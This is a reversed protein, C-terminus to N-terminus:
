LNIYSRKLNNIGLPYATQLLNQWTIEKMRRTTPSHVGEQNILEIGMISFHQFTHSPLNFHLGVPTDKRNRINSLHDNIRDALQRGTEGVYQLKCKTCTIVYILNCTKCNINGIVTFHKKNSSSIFTKGTTIFNCAKCRTNVCRNCGTHPVVSHHNGSSSTVHDLKSHVLKRRLNHGTCYATILRYDDFMNNNNIIAKWQSALQVGVENYAIVIPLPKPNTNQSPNPNTVKPNPNTVKQKGDYNNWIDTKMKRMMRKSYNRLALSRFLINCTNCYDAYSTSIRKFRLVQSKLVGRAVHRPHFSSKELLQHTDTSKFYVKTHLVDVDNEQHKYVTTDLFDVSVDSCCLTITIGDILTNLFREYEKLQERSGTFVLFIDDLYRYFLLPKIYFGTIAKDDFEEMYIDALGPAYTKGMATGCTQLYYQGNFEFDNNNLTLELLRLLHADPRNPEPHKRLAERTTDIIRNLKMNTYLSSVDGTVLLANKPIRQYRIKSVFDYTDKIYSRHRISIPRIFSDIYQSIRYSESSCDSVIPRGEPMRDPQPWKERPKHIKPLLYFIRARDTSQARLFLLQKRSIIKMSEMEELIDNIRAVNDPYIPKDLKRYYNTNNLQRDAEKLYADKDLIVTASGKDAPKIVISQNKQLCLLASREDKTLNNVQQNRLMLRGNIVKHKKLLAETANLIDQVTNLTSQSVKHDPPTWTSRHTFTKKSYDFSDDTEDQFYDKLKINRILRNQFSYIDNIPLSNYTPIFTLGKNLLSLQHTSLQLSSLNLTFSQVQNTNNGAGNNNNNSVESLTNTTLL